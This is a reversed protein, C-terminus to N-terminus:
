GSRRGPSSSKARTGPKAPAAPGRQWGMRQRYTRITRRHYGTRRALERTSLQSALLAQTLPVIRRPRSFGKSGRLLADLLAERPKVGAAVLAQTWGGFHRRAREFLGSDRVAQKRLDQGRRARERIQQLTEDPSIAPRPM